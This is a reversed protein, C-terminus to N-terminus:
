WCMKLLASYMFSSATVTLSNNQGGVITPPIIYSLQFTPSCGGKTTGTATTANTRTAYTTNSNTNVCNVNLTLTDTIVGDGSTVKNEGILNTTISSCNQVQARIPAACALAFVALLLTRRM